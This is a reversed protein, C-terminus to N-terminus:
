SSSADSPAPGPAAPPRGCRGPARPRRGPGASRDRACRPARCWPVQKARCRCNSWATCAQSRTMWSSGSPGKAVSARLRAREARSRCCMKAAAPQVTASSPGSLSNWMWSTKWSSSRPRFLPTSRTVESSRWVAPCRTTRVPRRPPPSAQPAIGLRDSGTQDPQPLDRPVVEISGQRELLRAVGAPQAVNQHRGAGDGPPLEVALELRWISSAM